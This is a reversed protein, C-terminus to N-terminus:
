RLSAAIELARALDFDGEIRYLIDGRQWALTTGV